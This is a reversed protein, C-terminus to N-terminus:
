SAPKKGSRNPQGRDKRMRAHEIAELKGSYMLRRPASRSRSVSMAKGRRVRDASLDYKQGALIAAAQSPRVSLSGVQDLIEARKREPWSPFTSAILVSVDARYSVDGPSRHQLAQLEPTLRSRLDRAHQLDRMPHKRRGSRTPVLAKRLAKQSSTDVSQRITATREQTSELAVLDDFDPIGPPRRLIPLQSAQLWRTLEMDGLNGIQQNWYELSERDHLAKAVRPPLTLRLVHLAEEPMAHGSSRLDDLDHQERSHLVDFLTHFLSYTEEDILAAAQLLGARAAQQKQDLAKQRRAMEADQERHLRKLAATLERSGARIPDNKM